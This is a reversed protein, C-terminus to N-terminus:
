SHDSILTLGRAYKSDNLPTLDYKGSLVQGLTEVDTQEGSFLEIELECIPANGVETVIDGTDIAVEMISQGLDVRLRRRLFHTELMSHLEENGLLELLEKGAESERFLEASPQLFCAPDDVPVNIEQRRHLGHDSSGNWKLSAVVRNGEMRVRFAIDNKSLTNQETDFYAAKMYVTERTDADGIQHLYDDEWIADAKAKDPIAYKMEVEM